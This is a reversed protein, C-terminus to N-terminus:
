QKSRMKFVLNTVDPVGDSFTVTAPDSILNSFSLTRTIYGIQNPAHYWALESRRLGGGSCTCTGSSESWKSEETVTFYADIRDTRSGDPLEVIGTVLPLGGVARASRRNLREEQEKLFAPWKDGSIRQSRGGVFVAERGGDRTRQGNHGLPHKCWLMALAPDETRTLGPVYHWGCSQPGLLGGGELIRRVTQEPVTMGRLIYANIYSSKYLLSLSAEPSVEGAPYRGGHEEAYQELASAMGLICCHSEGYPFKVRYYAVGAAALLGLAAFIFLWAKRM